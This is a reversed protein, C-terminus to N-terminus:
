ERRLSFTVPSSTERMPYQQVFDAVANESLTNNVLSITLEDGTRAVHWVSVDERGTATPLLLFQRAGAAILTAPHFPGRDSAQPPNVVQVFSVRYTGREGRLVTLEHEDGRWDGLLGHDYVSRVRPPDPTREQLRASTACGTAFWSALLALLLLFRSRRM